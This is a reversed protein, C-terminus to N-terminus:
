FLVMEGYMFTQSINVHQTAMITELLRTKKYFSEGRVEAGRGSRQVNAGSRLLVEAVVAGKMDAALHQRPNDLLITAIPPM